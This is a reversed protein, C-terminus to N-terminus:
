WAYAEPASKGPKGCPPFIVDLRRLTDESLKINLVNLSSRFQELTRPGIIEETLGAHTDIDRGEPHGYCNATDFFNIGAELAADMIAFAEEESTTQGFNMTGLCLRSVKLGTNGLYTYEM